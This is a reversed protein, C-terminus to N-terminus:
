WLKHKLIFPNGDVAKVAEFKRMFPLHKTIWPSLTRYDDAFPQLDWKDIMYTHGNINKIAVGGGNGTLVDKYAFKGNFDGYGLNGNFGRGVYARNVPDWKWLRPNVYEMNYSLTGDGNPIYLKSEKPSIQKMALKWAENRFDLFDKTTIHNVIDDTLGSNNSNWIALNDQYKPHKKITKMWKPNDLDPKLKKPGMWDKIASLIEQKKNIEFGRGLTSSTYGVPSINDYAATRAKGVLYKGHNGGLWIGPNTLAAAEPALGTLKYINEGWDKGTTAKSISNVAKDGATGAATTIIATTPVDIFAGATLGTLLAAPYVYKGSPVENNAIEYKLQGVYNNVAKIPTVTKKSQTVVAQPQKQKRWEEKTPKEHVSYYPQNIYNQYEKDEEEIQKKKETVWVPQWSPTASPRLPGSPKQFKTIIRM